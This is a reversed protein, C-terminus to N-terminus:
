NKTEREDEKVESAPCASAPAHGACNFIRAAGYNRIGRYACGIDCGSDLM